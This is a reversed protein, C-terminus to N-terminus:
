AISRKLKPARMLTASEVRNRGAQKARYLAKDAADIVQEVSKNKANPEAVGISVTVSLRGPTSELRHRGRNRPTRQSRAQSRRDPSSRRDPGRLEPPRPDRPRAEAAVDDRGGQRRDPEKRVLFASIEIVSRLLELHPLADKVTRGPFLVSFEEGGVRYAEGGGTVGALRTAVMRLVQDGTEHGHTDNFTKFHDVDVVAVVYPPELRFLADNFARRGPLRTLEDHYALLYSNEIISSVLILAATAVYAQATPGIGGSRLALLSALLAWFMGIEAPKRDVLCRGLLLLLAIGFVILALTPIHMASIHGLFAPHLFDPAATAGPRCLVAVFVSEFFLLGTRSVVTSFTFGRERYLSFVVFNLPVLLGMAELAIRGTPSSVHGGSFFELARQALLLTLVVFFTRSSHFRWALLLGAAFVAGYFLSIAAPPVPRFAGHLVVAAAILLIGGPVLLSKLAKPSWLDM